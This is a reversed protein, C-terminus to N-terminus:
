AQNKPKPTTGPTTEGPKRDPDLDPYQRLIPMMIETYVRGIVDGLGQRIELQENQDEIRRTLESARSFHSDLQVLVQIIEEATQRDM